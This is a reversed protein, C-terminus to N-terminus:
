NWNRNKMSLRSVTNQFEWRSQLKVSIWICFQAKFSFCTSGQNQFDVLSKEKCTLSSWVLAPGGPAGWCGLDPEVLCVGEALKWGKTGSLPSTQKTAHALLPFVQQDASTYGDTNWPSTSGNFSKAGWIHLNVHGGGRISSLWQFSRPKKVNLHRGAVWQQSKRGEQKGIVSFVHGM